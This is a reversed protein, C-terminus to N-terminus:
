LRQVIVQGADRVILRLHEGQTVDEILPPRYSVACSKGPRRVSSYVIGVLPSARVVEGFTQSAAYSAPDHLDPRQDRIDVFRGALRASYSRYSQTIEDLGSLAIERRLGSAVEIVATLLTDAGYWAGLQFSTFRPGTPSGHLFAAM